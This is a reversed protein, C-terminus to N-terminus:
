AVPQVGVVVGVPNRRRARALTSRVPPPQRACRSRRRQLHARRHHATRDLPGDDDPRCSCRAASTARTSRKTSPEAHGTSASTPRSLHRMPSGRSERPRPSAPGIRVVVVGDADGFRDIVRRVGVVVEDRQVRQRRPREVDQDSTSRATTSPGTRGRRAPAWSRHGLQACARGTARGSGSRAPPRGPCAASPGPCRGSRVAGTGAGSLRRLPEGPRVGRRARGRCSPWSPRLRHRHVPGRGRRVPPRRRAAHRLHADQPGDDTSWGARSAAARHAAAHPQPLPRDAPRDHGPARGAVADLGAGRRVRRGRVRRARLGPPGEYASASRPGARM